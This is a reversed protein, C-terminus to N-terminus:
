GKLDDISDLPLRGHITEPETVYAGLVVFDEYGRLANLALLQNYTLTAERADDFLGPLEVVPTDPFKDPTLGPVVFAMDAVGDLVLQAQSAVDRGLTGESYLVIEVTGKGTSNVQDVFPKVLNLYTASQDSTFFALKLTVPDALATSPVIAVALMALTALVKPM